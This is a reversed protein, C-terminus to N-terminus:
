IAEKNLVESRLKELRCYLRARKGFDKLIEKSLEDGNPVYGFNNYFGQIFINLMEMAIKETRQM